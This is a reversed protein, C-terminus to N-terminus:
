SWIQVIFNSFEHCHTFRSDATGDVLGDRTAIRISNVMELDSSSSFADHFIVESIIKPQHELKKEFIHSNNTSLAMAFRIRWRSDFDSEFESNESVM